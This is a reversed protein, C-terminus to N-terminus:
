LEVYEFEFRDKTISNEQYAPLGFDHYEYNFLITDVDGNATTEIFYSPNSELLQYDYRIRNFIFGDFFPNYVQLNTFPTPTDLYYYDTTIDITGLNQLYSSIPQDNTENYSFTFVRNEFENHIKSLQNNDYVFHHIRKQRFTSTDNLREFIEIASIKFEDTYSIDSRIFREGDFDYKNARIPINNEYNYYYFNPENNGWKRTFETLFNDEYFYTIEYTYSQNEGDYFRITKPVHGTIYFPSLCTEQEQKKCSSLLIFLGLLITGIFRMFLLLTRSM